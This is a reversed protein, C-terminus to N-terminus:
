GSFALGEVNGNVQVLSWGATSRQFVEGARTVVAISSTGNRATMGVADPSSSVVDTSGGVTSIGLSPTAGEPGDALVGLTMEDVWVLHSSPGIGVGVSLPKGISLPSDDEGRIIGAVDLRWVGGERSLVAVRAGDRAVRVAAVDRGELWGAPISTTTGDQAIAMVKGPNAREATWVWGSRDFSPATLATGTHLTTVPMAEDPAAFDEPLPITGDALATTEVLRSGGGVLFAVTTGDYALAPSEAGTPFAGWPRPCM